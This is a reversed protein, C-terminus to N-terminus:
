EWFPIDMKWTFARTQVEV